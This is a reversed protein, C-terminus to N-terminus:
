SANLSAIVSQCAASDAMAASLTTDTSQLSATTAGVVQKTGRLESGVTSLTQAQNGTGAKWADLAGQAQAVYKDVTKALQDTQEKADAAESTGTPPLAAMDAAFTTAAAGVPAFVEEAKAPTSVDSATISTAATEVPALFSQIASCYATAWADTAAPVSPEDSGCGAGVTLLAGAVAALGM